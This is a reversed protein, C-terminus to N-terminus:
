HDTGEGISEILGAARFPRNRHILDFEAIMRDLTMYARLTCGVRIIPPPQDIERALEGVHCVDLIFTQGEIGTSVERVAASTNSWRGSIPASQLGPPPNLSCRPHEGRMM